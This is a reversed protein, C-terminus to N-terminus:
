LNTIITASQPVCFVYPITSTNSEMSAPRVFAACVFTSWLRHRNNWLVITPPWQSSIIKHYKIRCRSRIGSWVRRTLSSRSIIPRHRHLFKMNACMVLYHRVIVIPQRSAFSRRTYAVRMWRYADHVNRIKITLFVVIRCKWELWDIKLSVEIVYSPQLFTPSYENIDNVTVHVNASFCVFCNSVFCCGCFLFLFFFLTM